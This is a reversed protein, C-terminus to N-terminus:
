QKFYKCAVHSRNNSPDALHECDFTLPEGELSFNWDIDTHWHAIICEACTHGIGAHTEEKKAM